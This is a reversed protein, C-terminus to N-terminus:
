TGTPRRENRPAGRRWARHADALVARITDAAATWTFREAWRRGRRREDYAARMHRRLTAVDGGEFKLQDTSPHGPDFLRAPSGELYTRAGGHLPAIVDLACAMAELAPFGWGERSYAVYVDHAQYLARMAEQSLTGGDQVVVRPLAGRRRRVYETVDRPFARLAERVGAYRFPRRRLQSVITLGVDDQGAFEATFSDVLDRWNARSGLRGYGTLVSLFGVPRPRFTRGDVGLPTVVVNRIGHREFVGRNWESPTLIMDMANCRASWDLEPLYGALSERETMTLGVTFREPRPRFGNPAAAQLYVTDPGHACHRRNVALLAARVDETLLPTTALATDCPPFHVREGLQDLALVLQRHIEGYGTPHTVVDPHNADEVYITLRDRTTM